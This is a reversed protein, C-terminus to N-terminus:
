RWLDELLWMLLSRVGSTRVWCYTKGDSSRPMNECCYVRWSEVDGGGNADYAAICDVSLM